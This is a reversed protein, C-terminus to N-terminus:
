QLPEDDLFGIASTPRASLPRSSLPRAKEGSYATAPRVVRIVELDEPSQSRDQAAWALLDPSGGARTEPLTSAPRHPEPSAM